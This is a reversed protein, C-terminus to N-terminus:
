ASRTSSVRLRSEPAPTSRSHDADSLAAVVGVLGFFLGFVPPGTFTVTAVSQVLCAVMWGIAVLGVWRALPPGSSRVLRRSARYILILGIAFAAAGLFGAEGIIAPWETDTLFRGDETGRGLGWVYEPSDTEAATASGYRGFGAGLPFHDAAVDFSGVTLVTRAAPAANPDLYDEYTETVVAAIPTALVVAALPVCVAAALLAGRSRGVAKVWVWAAV